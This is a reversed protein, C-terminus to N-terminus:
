QEEKSDALPLRISFRAGGTFAEDLCLEGEVAEILMRARYLGLGTGSGVDRTTFFPDFIKDRNEEPVGAGNDSVLIQMRQDHVEFELAVRADDRGEVAQCANVLVTNLAEVLADFSGLVDAPQKEPVEVKAAYQGSRQLRQLAEDVADATHVRAPSTSQGSQIATMKEVIVKVRDLGKRTDVYLEALDETIFEYDMEDLLDQLETESLPSTGSHADLLRATLKGLSDQYEKLTGLNSMVFGLPNNIEHAVGATLVGITARKESELLQTQANQITEIAGELERNLKQLEYTRLRVKDELTENLDRLEHTLQNMQLHSSEVARTMQNFAKGVIDIEDEGPVEVRRTLDGAGVAEAADRLAGLKHTLFRGLMFSFLAVLMMELLVITFSWREANGIVQEIPDTNFGLQVYGYTQGGERIVTQADFVGDNVEHMSSDTEPLLEEAADSAALVQRDSNLVRAYKIGPNTMVENVIAFLTALDYSLVADKATAAFLRSTTEARTELAEYNSDKIYGLMLFVLSLLLVGEILAVGLITKVRISNRILNM